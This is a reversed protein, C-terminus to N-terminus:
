SLNLHQNTVDSCVLVVLSEMLVCRAWTNDDYVFTIFFLSHYTELVCHNKEYVFSLVYTHHMYM